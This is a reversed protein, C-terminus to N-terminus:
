NILNDSKNKLIFLQAKVDNWFTIDAESGITPLIVMVVVRNAVYYDKDCIKYLDLAVKEAVNEM